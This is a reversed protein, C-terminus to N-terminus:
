FVFGMLFGIGVLKGFFVIVWISGFVVVCEFGEVIKEMDDVGVVMVVIVCVSVMEIGFVFCVCFFKWVDM